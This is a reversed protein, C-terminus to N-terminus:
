KELYYIFDINPNTIKCHLKKKSKMTISILILIKDLLKLSIKNNTEVNIFTTINTGFDNEIKILHKIKYPVLNIETCIDLKNIRVLIRNEDIGVIVAEVEESEIDQKKLENLKSIILFDRQIKNLKYKIFNLYNIKFMDININNNKNEIDYIMRHVLIDAYRRIPSTFHTYYKEGLGVHEFNDVAFSYESKEMNYLNIIKLDNVNNSQNINSQNIYGKHKRMLSKEKYFNYM